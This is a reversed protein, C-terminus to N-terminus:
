KKKSMEALTPMAESKISQKGGGAASSAVPEESQDLGKVKKLDYYRGLVHGIDQYAVGLQQMRAYAEKTVKQFEM